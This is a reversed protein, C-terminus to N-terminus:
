SLNADVDALDYDSIYNIEDKVVMGEYEEDWEFM